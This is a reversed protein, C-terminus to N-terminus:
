GHTIITLKHVLLQAFSADVCVCIRCGMNERTRENKIKLKDVELNVYVQLLTLLYYAIAKSLHNM